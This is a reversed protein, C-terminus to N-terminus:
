NSNNEYVALFWIYKENKPWFKNLGSRLKSKELTLENKGYKEEQYGCLPCVAYKMEQKHFNWKKGRIVNLFIILQERFLKEKKKGIPEVLNLSFSYNSFLDKMKNKNFTRMHYNRNFMTHCNKCITMNNELNEYYPVTVIIQKKAVRSIEKLALEYTKLNLHELVELACVSDFENNKFPLDNIEGIKKATKVYKIAEVSRDFGVIKKLFPIKQKAQNCLIGNGCGVDLLSESTDPILELVRNVRKQDEEKIRLPDWLEEKEYYQSEFEKNNTENGSSQMDKDQIKIM